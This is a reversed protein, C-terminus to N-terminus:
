KKIEEDEKEKTLGNVSLIAEVIPKMLSMPIDDYTADDVQLSTQILYKLGAEKDAQSTVQFQHYEKSTLHKVEVSGLGALEAVTVRKARIDM